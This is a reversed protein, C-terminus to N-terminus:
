CVHRVISGELEEWMALDVVEGAIPLFLIDPPQLSFHGLLLVLDHVTNSKPIGTPPGPPLLPVLQLYDTQPCEIPTYDIDTTAKEKLKEKKGCDQTQDKANDPTHVLKVACWVM